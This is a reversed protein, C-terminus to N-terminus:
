SSSWFLITSFHKTVNIGRGRKSLQGLPLWSLGFSDECLHILWIYFFIPRLNHWSDSCILDGVLTLSKSRLQGGSGNQSLVGTGTFLVVSTAQLNRELQCRKTM